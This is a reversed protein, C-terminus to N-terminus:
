GLYTHILRYLEQQKPYLEQQKPRHPFDYSNLFFFFTIQFARGAQWCRSAFVPVSRSDPTVKRKSASSLIIM